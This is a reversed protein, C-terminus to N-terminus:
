RGVVPNITWLGSLIKRDDMNIIGDQSFYCLM